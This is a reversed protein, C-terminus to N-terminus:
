PREMFRWKLRNFTSYGLLFVAVSILTLALVYSSQLPVAPFIHRDSLNHPDPVQPPALIVQRFLICIQAIPNLNYIKYVIPLRQVFSSNAVTEIFYFVPCLFYMIYMIVTVLYKVDEYFTNLASVLLSMGITFLLTILLLLPLFVISGQIPFQRPDHAYVGLLMLFLVALGLLLHIFNGLVSSIPLLERPFYIKKVIAQAGLISQASDLIATQLFSFPLFSTLYYVIFHPVGNVLFKTFVVYTVLTMLLPNLFSWLIGIVSNKYRIKLDRAVMTGLLERFRWLERMDELM